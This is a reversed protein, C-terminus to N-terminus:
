EGYFVELIKDEIENSCYPFCGLYESYKEECFTSGFEHKSVSDQFKLTYFVGEFEIYEFRKKM